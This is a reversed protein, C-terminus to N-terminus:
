PLSGLAAEIKLLAPDLAASTLRLDNSLATLSLRQGRIRFIRCLITAGSASRLMISHPDTGEEGFIQDVAVALRTPATALRDVDNSATTHALQLGAEDTLLVMSFRGSAAIKDLLPTLDRRPTANTGSEELDLQREAEVLTAPSQQSLQKVPEQKEIRRVVDEKKQTRHLCFLYGAAFLLVAGLGTMIALITM